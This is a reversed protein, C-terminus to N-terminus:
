SSADAPNSAAGGYSGVVVSRKFTVSPYRRSTGADLRFFSRNQPMYLFPVKISKLAKEVDGGFRSDDCRSELRAAFHTTADARLAHADSEFNNSPTGAPANGRWLERAVSRRISGHPWVTGFTSGKAASDQVRRRLSSRDYGTIARRGVVGHPYVEGTGATAVIPGRPRITRGGNSRRSACRFGIIARPPHDESRPSLRHVAAVNDRITTVPLASRSVAGAYEGASLIGNGSNPRSSSCSRHISRAGAGILWSAPLEGHLAVSASRRQGKPTLVM